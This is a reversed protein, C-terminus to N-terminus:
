REKRRQTLTEQCAARRPQQTQRWLLYGLGAVALLILPILLWLPNFGSGSPQLEEPLQVEEGQTVSLTVPASKSTLGQSDTAEM